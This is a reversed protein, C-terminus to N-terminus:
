SKISELFFAVEYQKQVVESPICCPNTYADIADSLSQLLGVAKELKGQVEATIQEQLWEMHESM